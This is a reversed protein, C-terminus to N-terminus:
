KIRKRLCYNIKLSLLPSLSMFLGKIRRKPISQSNLFLEFAVRKIYNKNKSYFAKFDPTAWGNMAICISHLLINFISNEFKSKEQKNSIYKKEFEKLLKHSKILDESNKRKWSSKISGSERIRYYYFSDKLVVIDKCLFFLLYGFMVDEHLMNPYFKMNHQALFNRNLLFRQSAGKPFASYLYDNGSIMHTKEISFDLKDNKSNPYSWTLPMSCVESAHKNLIGYLEQLCNTKIWDDSDIFWVYEGRAVELGNNRAMSLGLNEQNIVILNTYKKVFEAVIDMSKDPTGDNVVIVEYTDTSVDQKYISELCKHVFPEVNYVPIIISLLM